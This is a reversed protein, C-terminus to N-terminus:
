SNQVNYELIRNLGKIVLNSEAFIPRKINNAFFEADGGTVVIKLSPYQKQFTVIYQDVEFLIGNQVGNVIAETTSLGMLDNKITKHLLPLKGTFTHLAKFRIEIGPSINGGSYNGNADVFDITLATGADFILIDSKPFIDLAGAVAAIRDPGQTNKSQYYNQFPLKTEGTLEIVNNLKDHLYKIISSDPAYTSSYICNKIEKFRSILDQIDALRICDFIQHYVMNGSTYVAAKTRTNGIDLILNM